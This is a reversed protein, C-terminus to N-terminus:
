ADGPATIKNKNCICQWNANVIAGMQMKMLDDGETETGPCSCRYDIDISYYSSIYMHWFLSYAYEYTRQLMLISFMYCLIINDMQKSEEADSVNTSSGGKAFVAAPLIIEPAISAQSGLCHSHPRPNLIHIALATTPYVPSPTPSSHHM